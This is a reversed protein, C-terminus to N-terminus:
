AGINLLFNNLNKYLQLKDAREAASAFDNRENTIWCEWMKTLAESYAKPESYALLNEVAEGPESKIMVYFFSYPQLFNIFKAQPAFGGYTNVVIEGQLAVRVLGASECPAVMAAKSFKRLLATRLTANNFNYDSVFKNM